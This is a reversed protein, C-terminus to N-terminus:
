RPGFAGKPRLNDSSKQTHRDNSGDNYSGQDTDNSNTKCGTVTVVFVAVFAIFIYKM